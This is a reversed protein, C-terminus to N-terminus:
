AIYIIQTAFKLSSSSNEGCYPGRNAWCISNGAEFIINCNCCHPKCSSARRSCVEEYREDEHPSKLAEFAERNRLLSLLIYADSDGVLLQCHKVLRTDSCVVELKSLVNM